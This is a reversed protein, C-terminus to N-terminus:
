VIHTREWANMVSIVQEFALPILYFKRELLRTLKRMTVRPKRKFTIASLLALITQDREQALVPQKWLEYLFKTGVILASSEDSYQGGLVRLVTTYPPRPAWGSRKAAEVLVFADISTHRYHLNALQIVCDDYEGRDLTGENLCKMLLVQTWVGDTNFERKALSRLREDDTFLVTGPESAILATEISSSGIMKEVQQRQDRRVTLAAKCPIIECNINIWNLVKELYELNRKIDEASIDQRVFKDREKGIVMFGKSQIGKRERIADSLLDITSQAVGIKGFRKVMFDAINIAHITMIAIPDAILKVENTIVSDAFSREEPSGICSIVGPEASSILRSWVQIVDWGVLNAFAGITLKGERYFREVQLGRDHQRSVEDFVTQFGEPTAGKKQPTGVRVKWMGTAGPFLTEFSALSEQFAYVYKSKIDVIKGSIKSYPSDILVVDDGVSKGLMRKVLPHNLDFERHSTDADKRDEIIYWERRHAEEEICVAADVGVKTMNLWDTADKERQLFIGMYKLHSNPNNFFTRRLEYVVSFARQGRNRIALLGAYQLGHELSLKNMEFPSDLFKDLETLNNSRLNIVALRLQMTSDDPFFGLYSRCVEKAKPLDGIEEYIASEMEAIYQTPGFKQHLVQCIDLAKDLM